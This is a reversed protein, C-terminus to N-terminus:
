RGRATLPSLQVKVQVEREGLMWDREDISAFAPRRGDKLVKLQYRRGVQAGTFRVDPTFGILLWVEAGPPKSSLVMPGKGAPGPAPRVAPEPPFSPLRRTGRALQVGQQATQDGGEGVWHARAIVEDVSKYGELEYRVYHVQSSSVAVSELPTRGLKLWVAAEPESANVVFSGEVPQARRHEALAREKEDEAVMARTKDREPHFADSQTYMVAGLGAAVFSIIGVWLLTRPKRGTEARLAALPDAAELAADAAAAAAAPDDAAGVLGPAPPEPETEPEEPPPPPAFGPEFVPSSPRVLDPDLPPGPEPAPEPPESDVRPYTSSDTKPRTRAAETMEPPGADSETELPWAQGPDSRERPEPESEDLGALLETLGRAGAPAAPEPAPEETGLM